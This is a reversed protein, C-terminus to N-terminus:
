MAEEACHRRRRRRRRSRKRIEDVAGGCFVQGDVLFFSAPAVVQLRPYPFHLSVKFVQSLLQYFM